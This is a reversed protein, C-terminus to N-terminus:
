IVNYLREVLVRIFIALIVAPEDVDADRVVKRTEFEGVSVPVVYVGIREQREHEDVGIREHAKGTCHASRSLRAHGIAGQGAILNTIFGHLGRREERNGDARNKLHRVGLAFSEGARVPGERTVHVHEAQQRDDGVLGRQHEDLCIIAVLECEGAFAAVLELGTQGHLKM